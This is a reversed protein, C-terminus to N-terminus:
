IATKHLGHMVAFRLLDVDDPFDQFLFFSAILLPQITRESKKLAHNRLPIEQNGLPDIIWIM